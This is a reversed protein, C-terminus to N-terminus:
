NTPGAVRGSVAQDATEVASFVIGMGEDSVYAVSRAASTKSAEIFLSADETRVCLWFWSDDGLDPRAKHRESGVNHRSRPARKV